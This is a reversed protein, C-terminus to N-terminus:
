RIGKTTYSNLMDSTMPRNILISPSKHVLQGEENRVFDKFTLNTSVNNYLNSIRM